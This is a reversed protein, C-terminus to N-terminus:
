WGHQAPIVPTKGPSSASRHIRAAQSRAGPASWGNTADPSMSRRSSITLVCEGPALLATDVLFVLRWFPGDIPPFAEDPAQTGGDPLHLMAEPVTMRDVGPAGVWIEAGIAIEGWACAGEAPSTFRPRMSRLLALPRDKGVMVRLKSGGSSLTVEGATLTRIRAFGTDHGALIEPAKLVEIVDAKDVKLAFEVTEDAKSEMRVPIMVSEGLRIEVEDSFFSLPGAAGLCTACGSVVLWM